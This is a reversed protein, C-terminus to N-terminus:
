AYYFCLQELPAIRGFTPPVQGCRVLGCQQTPSTAALVVAGEARLM